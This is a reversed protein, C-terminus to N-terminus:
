RKLVKIIDPRRHILDRKIDDFFKGGTQFSFHDVLHQEQEATVLPQSLMEMYKKDDADVELIYDICSQMSSYDSVNIFRRPNFHQFVDPAGQYIPICGALLANTMKESIYGEHRENEFAIVFKFDKFSECNTHHSRNPISKVSNYCTGLNTVRNKSAQQLLELFMRRMRVGEFREDCNTYAFVCFLPHKKPTQKKILDEMTQGYENMQFVYSPVYHSHPLSRCVEKKTTLVLDAGNPVPNPEGDWIINFYKNKQAQALNAEVDVYHYTSLIAIPSALKSGRLVMVSHRNDINYDLPVVLTQACAIMPSPGSNKWSASKTSGIIKTTYLLTLVLVAIMFFIICGSWKVM